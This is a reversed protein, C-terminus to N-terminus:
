ADGEIEDHTDTIDTEQRKRIEDLLVERAEEATVGYEDVMTAVTPDVEWALFAGLKAFERMDPTPDTM